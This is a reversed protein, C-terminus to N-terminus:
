GSYCQYATNCQLNITLMAIASSRGTTSNRVYWHIYMTNPGNTTPQWHIKGGSAYVNRLAGFSEDIILQDWVGHASASVSAAAWQGSYVEPAYTVQTYDATPAPPPPPPKRTTTKIKTATRTKTQTKTTTRTSPKAPPPNNVPPPNNAPLTTRPHTSKRTSTRARPKTTTPAKPTSKPAAPTTTVPSNSGPAADSTGPTTTIPANVAAPRGSDDGSQTIAWATGGLALVGCAAVAALVQRRRRSPREPTAGAPVPDAAATADFLPFLPFEPPQSTVAAPLWVAGPLTTDPQVAVPETAMPLDTASLAVAQLAWTWTGVVWTALAAELGWGTLATALQEGVATRAADDTEALRRPVSEEAGIVIADVAARHDPAEAGLVDTLMARLRAPTASVDWGHDTLVQALAAAVPDPRVAADNSM